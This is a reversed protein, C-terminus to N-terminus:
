CSIFKRSILREEKGGGWGWGGWKQEGMLSHYMDALSLRTNSKSMSDVCYYVGDWGRETGDWWYGLLLILSVDMTTQPTYMSCVCICLSM